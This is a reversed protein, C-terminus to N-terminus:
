QTQSINKNNMKDYINIIKKLNNNIYKDNIINNKDKIIINIYKNFGNKHYLIEYNLNKM